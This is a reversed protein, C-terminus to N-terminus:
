KKIRQNLYVEIEDILMDIEDETKAENTAIYILFSSEVQKLDLTINEKQLYVYSAYLATRKNGDTFPHIRVIGEM